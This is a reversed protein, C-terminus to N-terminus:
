CKSTDVMHILMGTSLDETHMYKKSDTDYTYIEVVKENKILPFISCQVDYNIIIKM